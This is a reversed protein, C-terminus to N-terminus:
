SRLLRYVTQRSWQNGETTPLGDKNMESVIDAVKMGENFRRTAYANAKQWIPNNEKKLRHSIAAAQSAISTDCGKERGFGTTWEGKKNYWGGDSKKLKRKADMGAKTRQRINMVEIEASLGFAFLIAKSVINNKDAPIIMNDKAQVIMIGADQCKEVFEFLNTMSRAIRSLESVIITDGPEAIDFVSKLKRNNFDITGSIKEQIEVIETYVVGELYRQITLLQQDYSQEETSVRIYKIYKAM